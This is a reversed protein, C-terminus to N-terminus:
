LIRYQELTSCVKKVHERRLRENGQETECYTKHFERLNERSEALEKVYAVEFKTFNKFDRQLVSILKSPAVKAKTDSIDAFKTQAEEKSSNFWNTLEENPYFHLYVAAAVIIVLIKKFM